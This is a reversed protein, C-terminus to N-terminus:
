NILRSVSTLLHERLEARPIGDLQRTVGSFLLGGGAVTVAVRRAATPQPGCLVPDLRVLQASFRETAAVVARVVPDSQLAAALHGQDLVLDVLGPLAVELQRRPDPEPEAADLFAAMQAFVERSSDSRATMASRLQASWGPRQTIMRSGAPMSNQTTSASLSSRGWDCRSSKSRRAFGTPHPTSTARPSTWTRSRAPCPRGSLCCGASCPQWRTASLGIRRVPQTTTVIAADLDTKASVAATYGDLLKGGAHRVATEVQELLKGMPHDEIM